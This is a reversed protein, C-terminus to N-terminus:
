GHNLGLDGDLGVCHGGDLVGVYRCDDHFDDHDGDHGVGCDDEDPVEYGVGGHNLELDGYHLVGYDEHDEGLGVGLDGDHGVGYNLEDVEHFHEDHSWDYHGVYLDFGQNGLCGWLEM